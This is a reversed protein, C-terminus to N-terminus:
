ETLKVDRVRLSPSMRGRFRNIEPVVAWELPTERDRESSLRSYLALDEAAGFWISDVLYGTDGVLTFKLHRNKLARYGPQAIRARVRILPEPNGPGFPGLRELQQLAKLDLDELACSTDIKLPSAQPAEHDGTMAENFAEAFAALSEEKLSVGAAHRHGGFGALFASSARLGALVDKGAYTRASGKAHGERIGIVIAPRHFTETVRSAVIGVVGEHWRVSGVVVAHSFRGAAIGAEVEARVEDWIENQLKAREQNIAELEQALVQARAADQTSLLELALSASGMRGSANIRPGLVFGLHGPSLDKGAEIGAATLLARLGPKPSAKLVQLGHRGLIHNDGVLPVLDAATGM